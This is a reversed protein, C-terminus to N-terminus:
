FNHDTVTQSNVPGNHDVPGPELTMLPHIYGAPPSNTPTVAAVEAYSRKSTEVAAIKTAQPITQEGHLENKKTGTASKWQPRGFCTKLRNRHVVLTKTSGLLQIRYNVVGTKDIVTYPCWWLCSFKKTRGLKVAPIYLWVLDGVSFSHGSEKKDYRL